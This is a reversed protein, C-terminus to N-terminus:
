EELLSELEMFRDAISEANLPYEGNAIRERIEDVRGQDVEPTQDIADRVSQLRESESAGASTADGNSEQGVQPREGPQQVQRNDRADQTPTVGPRNGGDIPNAM